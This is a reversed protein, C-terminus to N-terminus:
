PHASGAPEIVQEKAGFVGGFSQDANLFQGGLENANPGFFAGHLASVGSIRSQPSANIAQNDATLSTNISATGEFRNGQIRASVDIVDAGSSGQLSGSLTKSGFDALFRAENESSRAIYAQGEPARGFASWRGKYSAQGTLPVQDSPTLHGHIFYLLGTKDAAPHSLLGTRMFQLSPETCCIDGEDVPTQSLDFVAGNFKFLNIDGSFPPHRVDQFLGPAPHNASGDAQLVATYTTPEGQVIGSASTQRAAFVGVAKRQLGILRGGLEAAHPGFFSGSVAADEDISNYSEPTATGSFGAATLQAAVTYGQRREGNDGHLTGTLTRTSFDVKFSAKSASLLNGYYGNSTTNYWTELAREWYGTYTASGSVPMAEPKESGKYFLNVLTKDYKDSGAIEVAGVRTYDFSAVKLTSGEHEILRYDGNENDSIYESYDNANARGSWHEANISIRQTQGAASSSEPHTFYTLTDFDADTDSISRTMDVPQADLTTMVPHPEVASFGYEHQEPAQLHSDDLLRDREKPRNQEWTNIQIPPATPTTGFNGGTACASCLLTTSAIAPLRRISRRM